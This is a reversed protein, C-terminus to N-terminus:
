SLRAAPVVYKEILDLLAADGDMTATFVIVMDLRPIVFILQGGRGRATYADLAPYVWWQYGYDLREGTTIHKQVSTEVWDAPVVQRGDWMGGNLYLYGLKAMDRSTLWLGWGGNVIGSSGTEWRPNVIGLPGFLNAKAFDLTSTGTTEQVIASLIFSCGSCYNFRRGPEAVMPKDLMFQVWDTSRILQMIAPDGETWDLGSTMTLLNDLTMAQKRADDQAFTREPFFSLVPQDVGKINGQAIAIGVLASVFSKTCSYLVHPDDQEGTFYNESVIYGHRIVLVSDVKLNQKQIAEVMQALPQADMGQQEPTSVRWAKTPWYDRSAPASTPPPTPSPSLSSAPSTSTPPPSTPTAPPAQCGVALSLIVLGIAIRSLKKMAKSERLPSPTNYCLARGFTFRGAAGPVQGTPALCISPFNLQL